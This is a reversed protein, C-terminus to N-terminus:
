GVLSKKAKELRNKVSADIVTDNAYVVFGGILATDVTTDLTVTKNLKQALLATLKDKQEGTLEFASHVSLCVSGSTDNHLVIFERLVAFLVELRNKQEMLNLFRLFDESVKGNLIEKLVALKQASPYIPSEILSCLEKKNGLGAEVAFVDNTVAALTGAEAAFDYLSKAYKKAIKNVSAM